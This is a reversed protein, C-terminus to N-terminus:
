HWIVRHGAELADLVSALPAARVGHRLANADIGRERLSFDEAVVGVGAGLLAELLAFRAAPRALQVGNHILFLRVRHGARALGIGLQQLSASDISDFPDRSEILLYDSVGAHGAFSNGV